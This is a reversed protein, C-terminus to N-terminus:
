ARPTVGRMRLMEEIAKRRDSRLWNERKTVYELHHPNVCAPNKCLHDVEMNPRDTASHWLIALRHAYRKKGNFWFVGYGDHTKQGIWIHCGSADIRMKEAFREATSKNWRPM